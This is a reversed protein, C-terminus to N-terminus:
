NPGETWELDCTLAAGSAFSTANANLALVQAVGRLVIEKDNNGGFNWSLMPTSEVTVTSPNVTSLIGARFMSNAVLTGLTAANATWYSAVASATPDTTDSQFVPMAVATGGTDATTRRVVRVGTSGNATSTGTCELSKVRVVSTASGVLTVFDTASAAPTFGVVGAHYTATRTPITAVVQQPRQANAEHSAALAALAATSLLAYRVSFM